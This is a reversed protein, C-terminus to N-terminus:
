ALWIYASALSLMGFFNRALKENFFIPTLNFNGYDLFM